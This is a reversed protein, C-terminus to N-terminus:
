RTASAPTWTRGWALENGATTAPTAGSSVTAANGTTGNATASQDV